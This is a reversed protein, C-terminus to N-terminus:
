TKYSHNATVSRGRMVDMVSLYYFNINGMMISEGGCRFLCFDNASRSLNCKKEKQRYTEDAGILRSAWPNVSKLGLDFAQTATMRIGAELPSLSVRVM